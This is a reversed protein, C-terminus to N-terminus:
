QLRDSVFSDTNVVVLATSVSSYVWNLGKGMECVRVCVCM